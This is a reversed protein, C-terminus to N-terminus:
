TEEGHAAELDSLSLLGERDVPLYTVRYGSDHLPPNVGGHPSTM